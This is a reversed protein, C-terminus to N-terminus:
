EIRTSGVAFARGGVLVIACSDAPGYFWGEVPKRQDRRGAPFQPRRLVEARRPADNGFWINGPPPSDTSPVCVFLDQLWRTERGPAAESHCRESTQTPQGQDPTQVSSVIHWNAPVKAPAVLGTLSDVCRGDLDVKAVGVSRPSSGRGIRVALRSSGARTRSRERSDAWRLVVSTSMRM